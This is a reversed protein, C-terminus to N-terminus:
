ATVLYCRIDERVLADIVYKADDLASQEIYVVDLQDQEVQRVIHDVPAQHFWKDPAVVTVDAGYTERHPDETVLLAREEPKHIFAENMASVDIPYPRM